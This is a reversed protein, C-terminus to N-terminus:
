KFYKKFGYYDMKSWTNIGQEQLEKHRQNHHKACLWKVELPREYNDHHGYSRESGCKECVGRVLIGKKIANAVDTRANIQAREYIKKGITALRKKKALEKTQPTM